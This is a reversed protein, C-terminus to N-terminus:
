LDTWQRVRGVDVHVFGNDPYYGVGGAKLSLAAKHLHALNVGEVNIDLARGLLHQSRSAVQEGHRHLMANTSASRYGSLIQFPRRTELRARLDHLLDFLRPHIFHQQGTRWDRLIHNAAALVDPVYRGNEYYVANLTEGTYFNHLYAHRVDARALPRNASTPANDDIPAIDDVPPSLDPGVIWGALRRAGMATATVAGASALGLGLLHRRELDM